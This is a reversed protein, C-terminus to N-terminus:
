ASPCFPCNVPFHTTSGCHNCPWRNTQTSAAPFFELWLDLDRIDWRLSPYNAAKTRFRMDYSLWTHLPHQPNASTIIRQYAILQSACSPQISVRVALYVNWAEMWTAFSTIKRNAMAM